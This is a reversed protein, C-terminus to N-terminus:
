GESYIRFEERLKELRKGDPIQPIILDLERTKKDCFAKLASGESLDPDKGILSDRKNYSIPSGCYRVTLIFYYKEDDFVMEDGIIEYGNDWLFERFEPVHSQPSLVLVANKAVEENGKLINEILPGGMGAIVICDASEKKLHCLGDSLVIDIDSELGARKINEKARQLPGERLDSAIVHGARKRKILEIALYGHDCGVDCVTSGGAIDAIRSLRNGLVAM